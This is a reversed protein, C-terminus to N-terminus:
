TARHRGVIRNTRTDLIRVREQAITKLASLIASAGAATASIGIAKWGELDTMAPLVTITAATTQVATWLARELIDKYDM